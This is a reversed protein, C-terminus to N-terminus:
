LSGTAVFKTLSAAFHRRENAPWDALNKDIATALRRRLTTVVRKGAPTLSLLTARADDPDPTAELLGADTLHACRRSVISRDLGIQQGLAAASVPGLRAIGSIVPYTASGVADHVGETLNAYLGSRFRRQLLMGLADAIDVAEASAVADPYRAYRV